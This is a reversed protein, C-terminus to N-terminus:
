CSAVELARTIDINGTYLAKGVIAGYIGMEKLKRIDDLTSIGGSAIVDIGVSNIENIAEFNPGKLMGDKSIDTFIVMKVGLKKVKKAFDVDSIDSTELWGRTAVKRNRSDISVAIRDGYKHVAYKLLEENEIASTGLIIRYIGLKLMEDIHEAKRIGGGLQVKIGKDVIKKIVDNNVPFGEKAGDLDVVHLYKAGKGIWLDAMDEPSESYVVSTDYEGQTLRVCKGELIDIAPFIIM